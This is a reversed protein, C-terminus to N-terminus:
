MEDLLLSRIVLRGQLVSCCFCGGECVVDNNNRRHDYQKMTEKVISTGSKM